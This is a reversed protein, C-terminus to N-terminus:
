SGGPSRFAPFMGTPPGGQRANSIVETVLPAWMRADPQAELTKVAELIRAPAGADLKGLEVLRAPGSELFSRLWDWGPEGPRVVRPMPRIRLNEMRDERLWGILKEGINPDGGEARWSDMVAQVFGAIEPSPPESHWSAYDAYEHVILTGGPRLMHRVRTLLDRPNRIFIFVWRSWVREACQLPLADSELNRELCEINTLGRAQAQAALYDLFRRSRDIAIVKGKPGVLQALDLTAYGPGCGVDAVTDGPQIGGRTWAAHATERWAAHQIGLRRIEVDGEGLVYEKGQM